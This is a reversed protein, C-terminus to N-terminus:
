DQAGARLAAQFKGTMERPLPVVAPCPVQGEVECICERLCYKRPGFHAPHSLQEREQRESRLTERRLASRLLPPRRPAPLGARCGLGPGRLLACLFAAAPVFPARHGARRRLGARGGDRVGSKSCFPCPVAPRPSSGVLAWRLGLSPCPRLWWPLPGLLKEAGQAGLLFPRRGGGRCGEQGGTEEMWGVEPSPVGTGRWTWGLSESARGWSRRSTSWSRRTARPRWTWM